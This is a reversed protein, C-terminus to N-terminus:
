EVEGKMRYLDVLLANGLSKDIASQSAYGSKVWEDDTRENGVFRDCVVVRKLRNIHQIDRQTDWPININMGMGHLLKKFEEPNKEAWEYTIDPKGLALESMSVYVLAIIQM